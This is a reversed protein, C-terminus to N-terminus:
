PTFRMDVRLIDPGWTPVPDYKVLDFADHEMSWVMGKSIVSMNDAFLKEAASLGGPNLVKHMEYYDSVSEFLDYVAGRSEAKVPDVHNRLFYRAYSKADKMDVPEKLSKVWQVFTPVVKEELYM